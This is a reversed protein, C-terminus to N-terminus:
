RWAFERPVPRGNVAPRAIEWFARIRARVAQAEMGLVKFALGADNPLRSAGEAWGDQRSVRPVCQDFVRAAVDPPTLFLVNGFVHFGDLVGARRPDLRAPEIVFRETFLEVGGPREARLTSSFLDYEFLEGPGHHKRGATLVESYFLTATPAIEVRTNALFRSKRHPIVPEPMYELYANDGLHIEQVQSAHNADMEQIKTSSQSTVHATAGAGLTIGITYRDGQLIGGSNSILYVCPMGPMAEDWYIARQVVLPARRELDALFSKGARDEFRMRALGVKGPMGTALQRPEDRYPDLEPALEPPIM